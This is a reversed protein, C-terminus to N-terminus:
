DMRDVWVFREDCLVAEGNWRYAVLKGGPKAVSYDLCAINSALLRPKDELWYHGIFVPPAGHDYDVLHDGAIEDDPIHTRASEPGMYAARYTRAGRDWWRVRIHHRENGDKDHFSFGPQLPIEKGKM